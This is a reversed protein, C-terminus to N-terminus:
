EIILKRTIQKGELILSLFYVGPRIKEDEGFTFQYNGPKLDEAGKIQVYRGLVDRLEVKADSKNGIDFSITFAGQSPNPFVKLKFETAYTAVDMPSYIWIDDIFINNPGPITDRAYSFKFYASPAGLFPSLSVTEQRWENSAPIFPSATNTTTLLTSGFKSYITTWTQQCDTSISVSLKNIHNPNSEAAAVQFVLNTGAILSLDISPSIMSSVNLRTNNVRPLKASYIGTRSADASQEWFAGGSSNEVTWDNNPIPTTEFGEMYPTTYQATGSIVNIFNSKNVPSATGASNACTYSVSKSGVSTYTVVPSAASSTAPNGGAFSWTYTTPTGNWSADSFTVPVGVCTQKRNAKFDAMPICPSVPNVVGTAILNANTWLNNRMSISSQLSAQMRQGQGATFMRCCYSYDMYNQFNEDVGVNCTQYEAPNNKDPCITYGITQPTDGVQDDGSCDIGAGNNGFVHYLDLWHGVEHTLVRSLFANGTGISGFYNNLLVMADYPSGDPWTGPFYTYGAASFGGSLIIRKVVYVNMYKTSNWSHSFTTISTDYWDTDTDYYHIIGSTCNGNTDRTALAFHIGTSDAVSKMSPIIDSTDANLKAFDQNLINLADIVQADSVNEPGGQHLIHFVVPITYSGASSAKNNLLLDHIKRKQEAGPHTRYFNKMTEDTACRHEQQGILSLSGLLISAFFLFSRM